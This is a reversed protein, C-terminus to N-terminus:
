RTKTLRPFSPILPVTGVTIDPVTFVRGQIGPLVYDPTAESCLAFRMRPMPESSRALPGCVSAVVQPGNRHLSILGKSSFDDQIRTIM